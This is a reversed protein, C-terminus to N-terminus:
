PLERKELRRHAGDFKRWTGDLCWLVFVIVHDALVFTIVLLLITNVSGLGTERSFQKIADFISTDKKTVCGREKRFAKLKVIVSTLVFLFCFVRLVFSSLKLFPCFLLSFQPILGKCTEKSNSLCTITKMHSTFPWRINKLIISPWYSYMCAFRNQNWFPLYKLNYYFPLSDLKKKNEPLKEKVKVKQRSQHLFWKRTRLWWNKM